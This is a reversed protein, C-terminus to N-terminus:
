QKIKLNFKFANRLNSGNFGGFVYVFGKYYISGSGVCPFGRPLLKIRYNPDIIFSIGTYKGTNLLNGFCFINQDPIQCMCIRSDINEPLNVNKDSVQLNEINVSLIIKTGQKFILIKNTEHTKFDEEYKEM